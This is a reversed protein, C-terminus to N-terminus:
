LVDDSLDHLCRRHFSKLILELDHIIVERMSRYECCEINEMRWFHPKFAVLYEFILLILSTMLDNM